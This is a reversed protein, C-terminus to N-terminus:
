GGNLLYKAWLFATIILSGIVFWIVFWAVVAIIAEFLGDEHKECPFVHLSRTEPDYYMECGDAKSKARLPRSVHRLM